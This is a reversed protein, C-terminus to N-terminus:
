VAVGSPPWEAHEHCEPCIFEYHTITSEFQYEGGAEGITHTEKLTDAKKLEDETLWHGCHCQVDEM